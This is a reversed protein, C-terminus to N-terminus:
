SMEKDSFTTQIYQQASPAPTGPVNNYIYLNFVVPTQPPCAGFTSKIAASPSTIQKAKPKKKGKPKAAMPILDPYYNRGYMSKDLYAYPDKYPYPEANQKKNQAFDSDDTSPVGFGEWDNHNESTPESDSSNNGDQVSNDDKWENNGMFDGPTYPVDSEGYRDDDFKNEGDPCLSGSASEDEYFSDDDYRIDSGSSETKSDRSFDLGANVEYEENDDNYKNSHQNLSLLYAAERRCKKSFLKDKKKSM